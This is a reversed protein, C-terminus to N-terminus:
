CKSYRRKIKDFNEITEKGIFTDDGDILVPLENLGMLYLDALNETIDVDYEEYEIKEQELMEKLQKCLPCNKSTYIRM